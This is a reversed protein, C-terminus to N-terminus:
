PLILSRLFRIMHGLSKCSAQAGRQVYGGTHEIRLRASEIAQRSRSAISLQAGEGALAKAVAFGLGKSAGGVMAVKGSLKLDM